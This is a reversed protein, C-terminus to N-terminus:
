RPEPEGLRMITRYLREVIVTARSPHLRDALPRRPQRHWVAFRPMGPGEPGYLAVRMVRLRYLAVAAPMGDAARGRGIWTDMNGPGWNYAAVADPWNGYHRYLGSLYTRGLARNQVDDFRNGGGADSAAAASVQMPGQPGDPDVRWMLPDTGYSSEVGDVAVAMRDLGASGDETPSGADARGAGILAAAVLLLPGGVIRRCIASRM